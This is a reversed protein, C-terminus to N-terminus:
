QFVTSKCHQIPKLHVACHILQVIFLSLTLRETMESEKTVGHVTARWGGRDM